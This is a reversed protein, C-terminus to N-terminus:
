RHFSFKEILKIATSATNICTKSTKKPRSEKMRRTNFEL